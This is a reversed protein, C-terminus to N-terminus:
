AAFIQPEVLASHIDAESRADRLQTHRQHLIRSVANVKSLYGKGDEEAGIVLAIVDVQTNDPSGFDVPTELTALLAVPRTASELTAHPLALGNGIGSSGLKERSIIASLIERDCLGAHAAALASLELLLQKKSTVPLRCAVMDPMFTATNM